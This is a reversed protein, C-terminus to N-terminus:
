LSVSECSVSKFLYIIVFNQSSSSAANCAVHCFQVSVVDTVSTMEEALIEKATNILLYEVFM